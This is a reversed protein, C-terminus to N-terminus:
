NDFLFVVRINQRDDPVRYEFSVNQLYGRWRSYTDGILDSLRQYWRFRPFTYGYIGAGSGYSCYGGPPESRSQEDTELWRALEPSPSRDDLAGYFGIRDDKHGRYGDELEGFTLYSHSHGDSGWSKAAGRIRPCCDKPLGRPETLVPIREGWSRNRVGALFAFWNYHRSHEIGCHCPIRFEKKKENYRYDKVWIDSPHWIRKTRHEVYPHIDCGM